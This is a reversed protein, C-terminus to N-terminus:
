INKENLIKNLKKIREKRKQKQLEEKHLKKFFETEVDIISSNFYIEIDNISPATWNGKIKRIKAEVKIGKM